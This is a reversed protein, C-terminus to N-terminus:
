RGLASKHVCVIGDLRALFVVACCNSLHVVMQGCYVHVSFHPAATGRKEPPPPVAPDWDLMIDGRGRGVETGLPM